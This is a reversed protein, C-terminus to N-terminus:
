VNSDEGTPDHGESDARATRPGTQWEETMWMWWSDPPPWPADDQYARWQHASRWPEYALFLDLAATSEERAARRLYESAILYTEWAPLTPRAAHLKRLWLAEDVSLQAVRGETKNCVQGLVRLVFEDSPDAPTQGFSWHDAPPRQRLERVFTKFPASRPFTLTTM